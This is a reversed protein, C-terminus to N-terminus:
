VMRSAVWPCIELWDGVSAVVTLYCKSPLQSFFGDIQGQTVELTAFSRQVRIRGPIYIYM